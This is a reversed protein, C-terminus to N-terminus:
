SWAWIDNFRQYRLLASGMHVGESVGPSEFCGLQQHLGDTFILNSVLPATLVPDGGPARDLAGHYSWGGRHLKLQQSQM